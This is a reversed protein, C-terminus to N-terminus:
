TVVPIILYITGAMQVADSSLKKKLTELDGSLLCSKDEENLGCEELVEQPNAKYRELLEPDTSVDTLFDKLSTM